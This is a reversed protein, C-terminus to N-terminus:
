KGDEESIKESHQFNNEECENSLKKQIALIRKDLVNEYNKSDKEYEKLINIPTELDIKKACM